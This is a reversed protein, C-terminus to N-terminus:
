LAGVERLREEIITLLRSLARLGSRGNLTRNPLLRLHQILQNFERAAAVTVVSDPPLPAPIQPLRNDVVPKLPVLNRLAPILQDYVFAVHLQSMEDLNDVAAPWAALVPRLTRDEILGLNGSQILAQLEGQPPDFTPTRLLVVLHRIPVDVPGDRGNLLGSLTNTAALIGLNVSEMQDLQARAAAFESGLAALVVRSERARQTDDWWADIAFALLISLVIAAGEASLRSWPIASRSM